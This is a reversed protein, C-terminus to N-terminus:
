KVFSVPKTQKDQRIQLLGATFGLRPNEGHGRGKRIIFVHGPRVGPGGSGPMAEEFTSM